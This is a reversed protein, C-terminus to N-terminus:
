GENEKTREDIWDKTPCNKCFNAGIESHMHCLPMGCCVCENTAPIICGLVSCVYYDQEGIDRHDDDYEDMNDDYM